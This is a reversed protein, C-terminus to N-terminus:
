LLSSYLSICVPSASCLICTPYCLTFITIIICHFLKIKELADLSRPTINDACQLLDCRHGHVRICHKGCFFFLLSSKPWLKTVTKFVSPPSAIHCNNQPYSLLLPVVFKITELRETNIKGGYCEWHLNIHVSNYCLTETTKFIDKTLGSTKSFRPYKGAQM